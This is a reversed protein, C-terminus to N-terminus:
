GRAVPFDRGARFGRGQRLTTEWIKLFGGAGFAYRTGTATSRSPQDPLGLQQTFFEHAQAISAVNMGTMLGPVPLGLRKGPAPQGAFTMHSAGDLNVGCREGPACLTVPDLRWAAGEGTANLDRTGTVTLLPRM